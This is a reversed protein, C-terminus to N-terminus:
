GDLFNKRRACSAGGQEERRAQGTPERQDRAKKTHRGKKKEKAEDTAAVQKDVWAALHPAAITGILLQLPHWILLPLTYMGLKTNGEFMAQLMPVGM